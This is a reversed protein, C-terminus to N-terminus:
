FETKLFNELDELKIFEVSNREAVAQCRDSVDKDDLCDIALVKEAFVNGSWNYQELVYRLDLESFSDKLMCIVCTKRKRKARLFRLHMAHILESLGIVSLFLVLLYFFIIM